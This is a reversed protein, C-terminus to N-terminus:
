LRWELGGGDTDARPLLLRAVGRRVLGGEVAYGFDGYGFTSALRCSTDFTLSLPRERSTVASLWLDAAIRKLVKKEIEVPNM